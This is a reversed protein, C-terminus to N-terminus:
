LNDSILMELLVETCINKYIVICLNRVLMESEILWTIKHKM